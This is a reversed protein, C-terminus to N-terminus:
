TRRERVYKGLEQMLFLYTAGLVGLDDLWGIIPLFDSIADFPSIVYLLGIVVGIKKWFPVDGDGFYAPLKRVRSLFSPNVRQLSNM